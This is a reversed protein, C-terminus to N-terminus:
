SSIDKSRPMTNVCVQVCAFMCVALVDAKTVSTQVAATYDPLANLVSILLDILPRNLVRSHIVSLLLLSLKVMWKESNSLLYLSPFFPPCPPLFFFLVGLHLPSLLFPAIVTGKKHFHYHLPVRPGPCYLAVPLNLTM